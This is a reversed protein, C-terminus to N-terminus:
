FFSDIYLFAVDVKRKLLLLILSGRSVPAATVARLTLNNNQFFKSNAAGRSFEDRSVTSTQAPFFASPTTRNFFFILTGNVAFYCKEGAWALCGIEREAM